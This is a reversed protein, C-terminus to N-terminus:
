LKSRRLLDKSDRYSREYDITKGRQYIGYIMLLFNCVLSVVFSIGGYFLVKNIIEPQNVINTSDRGSKLTNNMTKNILGIQVSLNALAQTNAKMQVKLKLLSEIQNSQEKIIKKFQVFQDDGKYKARASAIAKQSDMFLCTFIICLSIILFSPFIYKKM